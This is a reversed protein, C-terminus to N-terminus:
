FSVTEVQFDRSRVLHDLTSLNKKKDFSGAVQNLHWVEEM